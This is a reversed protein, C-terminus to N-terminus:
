GRQQEDLHKVMDPLHDIAGEYRTRLARDQVQRVLRELKRSTDRLNTKSAAAFLAEIERILETQEM